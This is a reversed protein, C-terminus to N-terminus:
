KLSKGNQARKPNQAAQGGFGISGDLSTIVMNEKSKRGQVDVMNKVTRMDTVLHKVCFM